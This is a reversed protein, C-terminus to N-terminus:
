AHDFGEPVAEEEARKKRLEADKGQVERARDLVERVKKHVEQFQNLPKKSEM